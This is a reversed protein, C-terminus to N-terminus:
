CRRSIMSQSFKLAKMYSECAADMMLQRERQCIRLVCNPVVKLAMVDEYNDCLLRFGLLDDFVKHAQYDLSRRFHGNIIKKM